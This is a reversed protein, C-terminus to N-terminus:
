TIPVDLELDAGALPLDIRALGRQSSLHFGMVIDVAAIGGTVTDERHAGVLDQICAATAAVVDMPEGMEFAVREPEVFRTKPLHRQDRPRSYITIRGRHPPSWGDFDVYGDTGVIQLTPMIAVSGSLQYCATMGNAHGVMGRGGPDYFQAGRVNPAADADIEGVVWTAHTDALWAVFDFYHTGICGLGGAGISVNVHRLEGIVGEGLVRKLRIFRDAFRRSMNVALRSGAGSCVHAMERASRGSTSMPKECLVHRVGARAATTAIDYHSPGNTAVTLLDITGAEAEILARWDTYRRPVDVCAAGIGRLAAENTDCVAAVDISAYALAEIHRRGMGGLGIIAAKLARPANRGPAARGSV